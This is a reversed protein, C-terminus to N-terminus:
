ARAKARDIAAIIEARAQARKAWAPLRSLVSANRPGEAAYAETRIGDAVYARVHALHDLNYFVLDGQRCSAILRLSLGMTPNSIAQPDQDRSAGCTLCTMRRAGFRTARYREAAAADAPPPDLLRVQASGGCAPCDVLVVDM